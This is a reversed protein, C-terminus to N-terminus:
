TTQITEPKPAAPKKKGAPKKKDKFLSWHGGKRGNAPSSKKKKESTMSGLIGAAIAIAKKRDTKKM